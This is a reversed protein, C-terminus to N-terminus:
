KNDTSVPTLQQVAQRAQHVKMREAKLAEAAAKRKDPSIRQAEQKRVMERKAALEPKMPAAFAPGGAASLLLTLIVLLLMNANKNQSRRASCLRTLARIGIKLSGITNLTRNRMNNEERPHPNFTTFATISICMTNRIFFLLGIM